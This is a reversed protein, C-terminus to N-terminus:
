RLMQRLAARDVEGIPTEPFAGLRIVRSPVHHHSLRDKVFGQLVAASPQQEGPRAVVYAVPIEGLDEDPMGVVCCAAISPHALIAAEIAHPALNEGGRLIIDKIRGTIALYGDSDLKGLDGTRLWGNEIRMSEATAGAPVYSKMVCAGAICIEGEEGRPVEHVAARELIAIRQGTLATGVTGERRAHIPNMVSTCTAETLGYSSVIPVGLHTEAERMLAVSMPAAGVRAIRVGRMAEPPRAHQLLRSYMTPVGTLYTPRYAAVAEFLLEARFREILVVAAGRSFPVVLQNNIGNTHALPMVHLLRDEATLETREAVGTANAILNGHTLLVGKARDTGAATFLLLADDDPTLDTVRNRDALAAQRLSLVNRVGLRHATRLYEEDALLWQISASAVKQSLDPQAAREELVSAVGGAALIGFLGAVMETTRAALLAVPEGRKVGRQLLAGAVCEVAELLEEYTLTHTRTQVAIRRRLMSDGAACAVYDVASNVRM